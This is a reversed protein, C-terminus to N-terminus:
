WLNPYSFGRSRNYVQFCICPWAVTRAWRFIKGETTAAFNQLNWHQNQTVLVLNVTYYLPTASIQLLPASNNGPYYTRFCREFFALTPPPAHLFNQTPPCSGWQRGGRKCWQHPIVSYIICRENEPRHLWCRGPGHSGFMQRSPFDMCVILETWRCERTIIYM